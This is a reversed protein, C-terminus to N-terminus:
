GTGILNVDGATIRRQTGDPLDMILAGTEDVTSFVGEIQRDGLTVSVPKGMAEAHSLWDRRIGEFGERADKLKQAVRGRLLSFANDRDTEADEALDAVCAAPKDPVVPSSVLNIGIGAAVWMENESSGTEVLIGSIKKAGVRVDNPWKLKADAGPAIAVVTERVALALAFPLRMAVDFGGPEVFLATCYLNGPESVWNRALRGRGASQRNAVIWCDKVNGSSARRKAESNTSDIDSFHHVPWNLSLAVAGSRRYRGM